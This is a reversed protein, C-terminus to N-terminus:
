SRASLAVGGAEYGGDVVEDLAEISEGKWAFTMALLIGVGGSSAASALMNEIALGFVISPLAGAFALAPGGGEVAIKKVFGATTAVLFAVLLGLGPIGWEYLARLFESHLVRNADIGERDYHDPDHNLMLAAGSSTGSGFFLEAGTRKELRELIDTYIGLRWALTGVEEVSGDRDSAASFLEDLRSYPLYSVLGTVGAGAVLLTLVIKRLNPRWRPSGERGQVLQFCAILVLALTSILVYRSGSLVIALVLAGCTTYHFFSKESSFVLIALLAVLCAAFYQPTSFSTFRDELEGFANELLYTQILALAIICWAALRVIAVDLWGNVWATCFVAYLVFYALLYVVMKFASLSFGGWLGAVAAYAALALWLKQPLTWSNSHLSGVGTRLLLLVPLGAVRIANEFGIATASNFSLSTIDLHSALIYCFLAWRMPLLVVGAAFIWFLVRAILLAEDAM